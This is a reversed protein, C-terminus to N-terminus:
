LELNSNAYQKPVLLRKPNNAPIHQVSKTVLRDVAKLLAPGNACTERAVDKAKGDVDIIAILSVTGDKLVEILYRGDHAIFRHAMAETARTRDIEQLGRAGNPYGRIFPITM